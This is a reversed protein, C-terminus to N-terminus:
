ENIRGDMWEAIIILRCRKTSWGTTRRDETPAANRADKLLQRTPRISMSTVRRDTPLLVEVAATM